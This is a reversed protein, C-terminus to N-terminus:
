YSELNMILIVSRATPSIAILSKDASGITFIEDNIKDDIDIQKIFNIMLGKIEYFWITSEKICVFTEDSLKCIM